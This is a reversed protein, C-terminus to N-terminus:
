PRGAPAHGATRPAPTVDLSAYYAAVARVDAEPLRKAIGQMLALPDNTRSGERWATFQQVIYQPSQNRLAPFTPPVGEGADGHCKACPPVDRTWDGSRAIYRGRALTASDVQITWPTRPPHAAAYWAAATQIDAATLRQAIPQMIPNRRTGSRFDNMQGVLYHADQGALRPFAGTGVTAAGDVGHCSACAGAAAHMIVGPVGATGPATGQGPATDPRTIAAIPDDTM